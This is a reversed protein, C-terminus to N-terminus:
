VSKFLEELKQSEETMDVEVDNAAIKDLSQHIKGLASVIVTLIEENLVFRKEKAARLIEEMQGALKGTQGYGMLLSQSKLSHAALYSGDILTETKDGKQLFAVNKQLMNLYGWSTQLYLGKYKVVDGPDMSMTKGEGRVITTV